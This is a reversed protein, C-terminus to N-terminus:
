SRLLNELFAKSRLVAGELDDFGFLEITLMGDFSKLFPAVSKWNITGLGLESHNSSKGNNDNLHVHKIRSGFVEIAREVSGEINAHGVDLTVQM